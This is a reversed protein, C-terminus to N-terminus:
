RLMMMQKSTTFKDVVIAYFYIGTAVDHGEQNRGDWIVTNRGMGPSDVPIETVKRGLVDFVQISVARTPTAIQFSITTSSNFPNPYNQFLKIDRPSAEKQDANEVFTSGGNTTHVIIGGWSIAWGNSQGVFSIKEVSGTMPCSLGKWTIGGDTTRFVEGTTAGGWGDRSNIFQISTLSAPTSHRQWNTGANTTHLVAMAPFTSIWGVSDSVFSMSMYTSDSGHALLLQWMNGGDSTRYLSQNGSSTANGTSIWGVNKSTFQISPVGAPLIVSTVEIWQNGGDTTKVIKGGTGDYGGVIWGIPYNTFDIDRWPSSVPTPQQSWSEGGDTTKFVGTRGVMWGLNFDLFNIDSLSGSTGTVLRRWTAGSDTTKLATGGDGAVFATRSDLPHIGHLWSTTVAQTIKQWNAGGDSTRLM